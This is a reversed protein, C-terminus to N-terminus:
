IIFYIFNSCNFFHLENHKKKKEIVFMKEFFCLVLYIVRYVVYYVSNNFLYKCLLHSSLFFNFTKFKGKKILQFFYLGATKNFM